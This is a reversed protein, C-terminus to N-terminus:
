PCRSRERTQSLDPRPQPAPHRRHRLSRPPAGELRRPRAPHAHARQALAPRPRPLAAGLPHGRGRVAPQLGRALRRDHVCPRGRRGPQGGCRHGRHPGGPGPRGRSRGRRAAGRRCAGASRGRRLGARRAPRRRCRRHRLAGARGPLAPEEHHRLIGRGAARRPRHRCRDRRAPAQAFAGYVQPREFTLHYPTVREGAVRVRELRVTGSATTRQGLGDWDDIVTVGDADREVWAVVLPGGEGQHALM